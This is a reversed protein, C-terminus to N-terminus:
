VQAFLPGNLNWAWVLNWIWSVLCCEIPWLILVYADFYHIVLAAELNMECRMPLVLRFSFWNM